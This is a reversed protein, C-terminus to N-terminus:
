RLNAVRNRRGAFLLALGLLGLTTLGWAVFPQWSVALDCHQDYAGRAVAVGPAGRLPVPDQSGPIGPIYGIGCPAAVEIIQPSVVTIDATIPRLGVFTGAILVLAGLAVLAFRVSAKM